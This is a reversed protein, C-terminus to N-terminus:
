LKEQKAVKCTIQDPRLWNSVTGDKKERFSCKKGELTRACDKCCAKSVGFYPMASPWLKNADLWSVIQMEAHPAASEDHNTPQDKLGLFVIENPRSDSRLDTLEERLSGVVNAKATQSVAGFSLYQIEWAGDEDKVMSRIKYNCAVYLTRGVIAVAVTDNDLESIDYVGLKAAAKGTAHYIVHEDKYAPLSAPDKGAKKLAQFAPNKEQNPNRLFDTHTELSGYADKLIEQNKGARWEATKAQSLKTPPDGAKPLLRVMDIHDSTYVVTAILGAIRDELKWKEGTNKEWDASKKLREADSLPMSGQAM